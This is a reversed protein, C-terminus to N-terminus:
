VPFIENVSRYEKPGLNDLGALVVHHIVGDLNNEWYNLFKRIRPLDPITDDTSWIFEQILLPFDPYYYFVDITIVATKPIIIM